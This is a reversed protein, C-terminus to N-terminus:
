SDIRWNGILKDDEQSDLIVDSPTGVENSNYLQEKLKELSNIADQVQDGAHFPFMWDIDMELTLKAM